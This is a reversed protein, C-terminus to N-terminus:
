DFNGWLIRSVDLVDEVLQGLARANREVTKLARPQKEPAITGAQLM